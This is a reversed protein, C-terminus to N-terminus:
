SKGRGRREAKKEAKPVMYQIRAIAFHRWHECNYGGGFYRPCKLCWFGGKVTVWRREADKNKM